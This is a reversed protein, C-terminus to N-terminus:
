EDTKKTKNKPVPRKDRMYREVKIDYTNKENTKGFKDHKLVFSSVMSSYLRLEHINM